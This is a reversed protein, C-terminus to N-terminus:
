RTSPAELIALREPKLSNTIPSVITPMPVDVGSITTLKMDAKLPSASIATPFITPEFMNLVNAIRPRVAMM